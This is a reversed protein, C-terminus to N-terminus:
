LANDTAPPPVPQLRTSTAPVLAALIASLMLHPHAHLLPMFTPTTPAAVPYPSPPFVFPYSSRNSVPQSRKNVGVMTSAAPRAPRPLAVWLGPTPQAPQARRRSTTPLTAPPPPLSAKSATPAVIWLCRRPPLPLPPGVMLPCRLLPSALLTRERSVVAEVSDLRGDITDLETRLPNSPAATGTVLTGVVRITDDDKYAATADLKSSIATRLANPSADPGLMALVADQYDTVNPLM